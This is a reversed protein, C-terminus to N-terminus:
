RGDNIWGKPLRMVDYQFGHKDCWQAYTTKSKKSLRKKSDMFIFRIDIDPHQKRVLLHKARDEPSFLGKTEVYFGEQEVYFDPTYTRPNPVFRIKDPEYSAKIRRDYLDRAFAAEFGSRFRTGM